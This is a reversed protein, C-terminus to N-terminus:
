AKPKEPCNSGGSVVCLRHVMLESWWDFAHKVDAWDDLGKTITKGGVRRDIAAAVIKGTRAESLKVEIQAAGVFAPKETALEKLKSIARLQPVVTSIMDLAVWSQEYDTVAIQIRVTEPGPNDVLEYRNALDVYLKNYFYNLLEQAAENSNGGGLHQPQRYLVVHDLIVGKLNPHRGIMDPDVWLLAALEGKSPDGPRMKEYLDEGLFGSKDVHTAHRTAACGSVIIMVTVLTLLGYIKRM